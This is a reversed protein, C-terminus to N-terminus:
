KRKFTIDLIKIDKGDQEIFMQYTNTNNDVITTVEKMNETKGTMVDKQRTHLTFVKGAEDCTGESYMIATSMSDVWTNVYRKKAKDYGMLGQGAFPKGFTEGAYDSRLFRGGLVLQSKMTGKSVMPDAGPELFLKLEATWEGAMPKLREHEAGPANAKEWDAQEPEAAKAPEAAPKAPAEDKALVPVACLLAIALPVALLNTTRIM